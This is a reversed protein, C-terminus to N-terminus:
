SKKCARDKLELLTIMEQHINGNTTLIEKKDITVPGKSFDTIVADAETVLDIAGKKNVRTVRGLRFRLVEAAKFAAAIGVRKVSSLQM